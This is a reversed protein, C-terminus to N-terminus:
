VHARGIQCQLRAIDCKAGDSIFVEDSTVMNPYFVTAIKQRLETLGQEDGYGSYGEKTGLSTAYAALAKTIHPTLPETTNGIGLSIIKADPHKAQYERRRKAVEPFLYGASLNSFGENRKLM